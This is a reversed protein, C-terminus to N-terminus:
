KKNFFSKKESEQRSKAKASAVFYRVIFSNNFARPFSIYIKKCRPCIWTAINKNDKILPIITKNEYWCERCCIEDKRYNWLWGSIEDQIYGNPISRHINEKPLKKIRQKETKNTILDYILCTVILAVIIGMIIIEQISYGTTFFNWIFIIIAIAVVILGIRFSLQRFKFMILGFGFISIPLVCGVFVNEM